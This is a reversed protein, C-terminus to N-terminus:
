LFDGMSINGQKVMTVAGTIELGGNVRANQNNLVEVVRTADSATIADISGANIGVDWTNGADSISLQGAAYSVNTILENTANADADDVADTALSSL